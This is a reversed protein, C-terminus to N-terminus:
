SEEREPAPQRRRVTVRRALATTAVGDGGDHVVEPEAVLQRRRQPRLIGLTPVVVEWRRIPSDPRFTHRIAGVSSPPM